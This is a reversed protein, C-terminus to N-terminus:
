LLGSPVGRLTYPVGSLFGSSVGRAVGRLLRSAVGRPAWFTLYVGSCGQLYQESFGQLHAGLGRKIGSKSGFITRFFGVISLRPGFIGSHPGLTQVHGFITRIHGSYKRFHNFTGLHLHWSIMNLNHIHLCSDPSRAAELLIALQLESSGLTRM